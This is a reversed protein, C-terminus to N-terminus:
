FQVRINLRRETQGGYTAACENCDIRYVVNTKEYKSSVGKGLKIFCNWKNVTNNLM